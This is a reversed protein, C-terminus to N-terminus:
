SSLATAEELLRNTEEVYPRAGLAGFAHLAERLSRGAEATRHLGVLCRGRGLLAFAREPVVGFSEWRRAAEGYREVAREPSGRAEALIAQASSLAHEQYPYVPEFGGGRPEALPVVGAQVAARVMTPLYAPYYPTERVHPTRDAQELLDTAGEHDNSAVRVMAATALTPAIWEPTGSGLASGVAWEMLSSVQHAEGRLTRVRAQTWRVQLLDQMNGAAELRAAIGDAAELIEEFSGVDLLPDRSSASMGLAMEDIGRGEAFAIGERYVHLAASPGEISWLAVGLNNYLVAAERGEGRDLALGLARRLDERGELDGLDCRASGRYGLAKAPEPLDLEHALDIARQVWDIGERSSGSLLELRGREACAAVLDPGPNGAELLAVSEAAVEQSRPDGMLFLVNALTTMARAAGAEDGRLQFEQVAGELAEAAEATRGAQRVADAWRALVHAREPHGRPALELARALSAEAKTTDLGLARDGALALFRLAPGELSAVEERQRAARALDIATTYHHALIEAHDEVRDEVVGEIWDAARRHKEARRARPIQAYAVDRVLAHWFAYEQEGAMSSTRSPRVLEKRTLEHMAERVAKEDRDGMVALAGSWFVKGIVAADALMQKREPVLTDLRAAIIGQVGTPLPVEAGKALEWTKGARVLLARDKLMRVFEEAYLPNGGSRELILSQIEAPLVARELLASILRATENPTLPALNITSANRIDGAWGRHREYLEPRATALLLMPLGESWEAVHELFSLMAEDAWHLDEFVFVAPGREAISELFRRWATFAEERDATSSAEMGVLPLLRQRLWERDSADVPLATELKVAVAEPPDSEYIGAHAKVIEGLAWFTIGEGYPLCRGQRWVVLDPREDAHAGLEAVMRSKGVGPEGVITVLQVSSEQLCKEFTGRLIGFDIQRGVMPTTSIRALDTGLRARASIARWIPIPESKGKVAVPDLAEYEFIQETARFTPEGVVVGGPPAVSQLRSATNVVDGTVSEGIQPGAGYAVVAEGTNIGVRAALHLDPEGENLDAMAAQIALAARVAREPDDEHSLPSGFVGLAADGIFKDLTGGFAEIERKLRTHFPRLTAKVDEPDARDSRATFGVLDCFLVTVLKREEPSAPGASLPSACAMCFKAVDPNETGCKPCAHV